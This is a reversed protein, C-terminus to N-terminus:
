EAEARHVLDWFAQDARLWQGTHSLQVFSCSGEYTAIAVLPLHWQTFVLTTYTGKGALKDADPPCGPQSATEPLTFVRDYLALVLQADSVTVRSSASQGKVLYLPLYDPRAPAFTALALVSQLASRFQDTIAFTGGRAQYAGEVTITQCTDSVSAPVTQAGAIFVFQYTPALEPSCDQAAGAQPLALIADYFQRATAASPILATQPVQGYHSALAIALRDPSLPPTATFIAQDLQQWFASTGQRDPTAGAITVLQCGDHNAQVTVLTTGGQRFTLTYHPGRETSCPQTTPLAPLAYITAYLHRVLPADRLTVVPTTGPPTAASPADIAIRVSDPATGAPPGGARTRAGCASLALALVAGLLISTVVIAPKKARM